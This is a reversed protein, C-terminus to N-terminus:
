DLEVTLVSHEALPGAHDVAGLAALQQNPARVGELEELTLEGIVELCERGALPAVRSQQIALAV